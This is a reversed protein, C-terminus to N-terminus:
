ALGTLTGLDRPALTQDRHALFRVLCAGLVATLLLEAQRIKLAGVTLM